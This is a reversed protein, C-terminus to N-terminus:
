LSQITYLFFFGNNSSVNDNSWDHGVVMDTFNNANIVSTYYSGVAPSTKFDHVKSKKFLNALIKGERSINKIYAATKAQKRQIVCFFEGLKMDGANIYICFADINRLM